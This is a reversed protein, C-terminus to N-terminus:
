VIRSERIAASEGIDARYQMGEFRIKDVGAYAVGRAAAFTSGLGTVALVRGGNTYYVESRPDYSTGMHTIIAGAAMARKIGRIPKGKTSSAPYGASALVVTVVKDPRWVLPPVSALDGTAAADLVSLLSTKPSLLAMLAIAEPDGFRVNLELVQLGADTTQMLGLFLCGEFPRGREKM